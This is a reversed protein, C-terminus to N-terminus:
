RPVDVVISHTQWTSRMTKEYTISQDATVSSNVWDRSEWGGGAPDHAGVKKGFLNILFM